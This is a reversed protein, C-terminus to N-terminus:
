AATETPLSLKAAYTELDEKFHQHAMLNTLHAFARPYAKLQQILPAKGLKELTEAMYHENSLLALECAFVIDALSLEDLAIFPSTELAQEIGAMFSEFSARMTEYTTIDLNERALIYPQIDKAFLLTRDLFADVRSQELLSSGYLVPGDPGLRAAARMISNSEFLGLRGDEGFAAPIDGFPNAALFTDTKYLTGKFGTKATRAFHSLAPKDAETLERADYDWLWGPMELPKAGLIEMQVGSFRAAITAKFLRPNPLYSIVRLYAM